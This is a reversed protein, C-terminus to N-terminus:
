SIEDLVIQLVKLLQTAEADTLPEDAFYRDSIDEAGYQACVDDLLCLADDSGEDDCVRYIQAYLEDLTEKLDIM